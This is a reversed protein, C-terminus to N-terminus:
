IPQEGAILFSNIIRSIFPFYCNTHFIDDFKEKWYIHEETGKILYPNLICTYDPFFKGGEKFDEWIITNFNNKAYQYKKEDFKYMVSM